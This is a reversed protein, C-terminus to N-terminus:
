EHSSSIQLCKRPTTPAFGEGDQQQEMRRRLVFYLVTVSVFIFLLTFVAIAVAIGMPRLSTAEQAQFIGMIQPTLTENASPPHPAMTTTLLAVFARLSSTCIITIQFFSKQLIFSELSSSLLTIDLTSFLIKPLCYLLHLRCHSTRSQFPRRLWIESPLRPTLLM